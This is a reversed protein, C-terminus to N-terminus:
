IFIIWYALNTTMVHLRLSDSTDGITNNRTAAEQTAVNHIRNNGHITPEGESSHARRERDARVAKRVAQNIRHTIKRPSHSQQWSAWIVPQATSHRLERVHHRLCLLNSRHGRTRSDQGSFEAPWGSQFNRISTFCLVISKGIDPGITESRAESSLCTSPVQQQWSSRQTLDTRWRAVRPLVLSFALRQIAKTLAKSAPVSARTTSPSLPSQNESNANSRTLLALPPELSPLPAFAVVDPAGGFLRNLFVMSM